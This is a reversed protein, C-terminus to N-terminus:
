PTFKKEPHEIRILKALTLAEIVPYGVPDDAEKACKMCIIAVLGKEVPDVGPVQYRFKIYYFDSEELLESGCACCIDIDAM